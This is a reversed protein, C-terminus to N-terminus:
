VVVGLGVVRQRLTFTCVLYDNPYMVDVFRPVRIIGRCKYLFM